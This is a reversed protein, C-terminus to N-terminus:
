SNSDFGMPANARAPNEQLNPVAPLLIRFRTGKGPDSSVQIQGGSQKVIGYVTALGMGSGKGMPKTTFFPEFIRALTEKDMGTGTDSVSLSVFAGSHIPGRIDADESFHNAPPPLEEREANETELALRGGLPMAERANIILNKIIIEVQAPDAKVKFLEPALGISFEIKDGLSRRIIDEMSFILENLDLAKPQLMQRRGFALLERTLAAARSGAKRIEMLSERHPNDGGLMELLLDSYGNIATLLNNFDHAVGGALRGISELKQAQRLEEEKARLAQDLRKIETVDEILGEVVGADGALSTLTLSIWLDEGHPGRLKMERIRVRGTKGLDDRLRRLEDAQTVYASLDWNRAEEWSHMGFIRLFAPNAYALKGAPTMRYVGVDLRSMLDQLRAESLEARKRNRERDLAGRAAVALQVFHRPSKLVYDDLGAKLAQVAIEENGTATFMIVPCDPHRSKLVPLIELGTSWNLQYDTITLDYRFSELAQDLDEKDKVEKTLIDPFERRLARLVLARDEPNDDILLVQLGSAM